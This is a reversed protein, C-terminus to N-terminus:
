GRSRWPATSQEPTTQLAIEFLPQLGDRFRANGDVRGIVIHRVRRRRQPWPSRREPQGQEQGRHPPQAGWRAVGPRQYSEIGVQWGTSLNWDIEPEGQQRERRIPHAEGDDFPVFGARDPQGRAPEIFILNRRERAG